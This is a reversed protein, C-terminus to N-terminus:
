SEPMLSSHHHMIKWAGSIKKVVYTYRAKTAGQNLHFTYVGSWIVHDNDIVQSHNQNWEVDDVGNLKPLFLDFYDGIREENTRLHNSLTPWLSAGVTSASDYHALVAPKDKNKVSKGWSELCAFSEHSMRSSPDDSHYVTNSAGKAPEKNSSAKNKPKGRCLKFCM